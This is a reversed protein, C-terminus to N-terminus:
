EEFFEGAVKGTREVLDELPEVAATMELDVAVSLLESLKRQVFMLEHGMNDYIFDITENEM